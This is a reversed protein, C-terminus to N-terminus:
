LQNYATWMNEGHSCVSKRTCDEDKSTGLLGSSLPRLEQESREYSARSQAPSQVLPREPVM